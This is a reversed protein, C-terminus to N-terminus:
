GLIIRSKVNYKHNVGKVVGGNAELTVFAPTPTKSVSGRLNWQGLNCSSCQLLHLAIKVWRLNGYDCSM